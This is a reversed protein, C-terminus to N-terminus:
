FADFFYKRCKEVSKACPVLKGAGKPPSQVINPGKNPSGLCESMAFALEPPCDSAGPCLESGPMLPVWCWFALVTLVHRNLGQPQLQGRGVCPRGPGQRGLVGSSDSFLGSLTGRSLAWFDQFLAGPTGFSDLFLRFGSKQVRKPSKQSELPASM